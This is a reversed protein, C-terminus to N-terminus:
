LSTVRPWFRRDQIHCTSAQHERAVTRQFHRQLFNGLTRLIEEWGGRQVIKRTPKWSIFLSLSTQAGGCM